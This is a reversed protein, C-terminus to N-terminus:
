KLFKLLLNLFNGAMGMSKELEVISVLYEKEEKNLREIEKRYDKVSEFFDNENKAKKAQEKLLEYTKNVRQIEQPWLKEEHKNVAMQHRLREQFTEFEFTAKAVATNMTENSVHSEAFAKKADYGLKELEKELRAGRTQNDIRKSKLDEIASLSNIFSGLAGDMAFQPATMNPVATALPATIGSAPNSLTPATAAPTSHLSLSGANGTDGAALAPNLGAARLRAAQASPTNYANERNWQALQAQRDAAAIFQNMRNTDEAIKINADNTAKGSKLITDNTSQTNKINTDNTERAIQLNTKNTQNQSIPNLISSALSGVGSAIPGLIDLIGM